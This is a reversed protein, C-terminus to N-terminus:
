RRCVVFDHGYITPAEIIYLSSFFRSWSKLIYDPTHLTDVYLKDDNSKAFNESLDLNDGTVIIGKDIWDFFKNGDNIQSFFHVFGHVSFIGIGDPKLIRRIEALYQFQLRETLHTFVSIGFCADFLGSDFPIEAGPKTLKFHSEPFGNAHLQKM